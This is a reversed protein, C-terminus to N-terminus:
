EIACTLSASAAAPTGTRGCVAYGAADRARPLDRRMRRAPRAGAGRRRARRAGSCGPTTTSRTPSGHAPQGDPREDRDRGRLAGAADERRGTTAALIGLFRAVPGVAVEGAAMVNVRAYPRLLRYLVAARERRGSSGRGRRSPSLCFLWEGDRPLAAFEGDGARRLQAAGRGRAGLELEILPCSAASRGTAPIRQRGSRPDLTRSRPSAARSAACCSCRWGTRATPTRGDRTAM